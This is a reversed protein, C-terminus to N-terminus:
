SRKARSSMDPNFYRYFQLSLLLVALISVYSVCGHSFYGKWLRYKITFPVTQSLNQLIKVSKQIHKFVM